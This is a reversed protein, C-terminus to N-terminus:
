DLFSLTYLFSKKFFRYWINITFKLFCERFILFLASTGVMVMRTLVTYTRPFNWLFSLFLFWLCSWCFKWKKMYINIDWPQSPFCRRKISSYLRRSEQNSVWLRLHSGLAPWWIEIGALQLLSQSFSIVDARNSCAKLPMNVVEVDM